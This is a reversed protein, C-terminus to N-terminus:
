FPLLMQSLLKPRVRSLRYKAEVAENALLASMTAVQLDKDSSPPMGHIMERVFETFETYSSAWPWKDSPYNPWYNEDAVVLEIPEEAGLIKVMDDYRLKVEELETPQTCVVAGSLLSFMAFTYLTIADYKM